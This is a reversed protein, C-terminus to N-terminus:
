GSKVWSHFSKAVNNVLRCSTTIWGPFRSLWKVENIYPIQVLFAL